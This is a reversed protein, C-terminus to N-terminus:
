CTEVEWSWVNQGLRLHLHKILHTIDCSHPTKQRSSVTLVRAFKILHGSTKNSRQWSYQIYTVPRLIMESPSMSAPMTAAPSSRGFATTSDQAVVPYPAVTPYLGLRGFSNREHPATRSYQFRVSLRPIPSTTIRKDIQRSNNERSHYYSVASLTYPTHLVYWGSDDRFIKCQRLQGAATIM